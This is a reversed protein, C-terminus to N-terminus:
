KPLSRAGRVPAHCPTLVLIDQGSPVSANGPFYGWIAGVISLGAERVLSEFFERSFALGAQPRSSRRWRVEGAAGVHPFAPASSVAPDFLFATVLATRGPELTRCIEALYHRAEPVLLHTFVSKALIFGASSDSLPFRYTELRGGPRSSYPSSLEALEFALRADKAFGRRCWGISPQHVDFGLYRGRPGLLRAFEFAMAGAGCGVDLVQDDERVLKMDTIAAAM